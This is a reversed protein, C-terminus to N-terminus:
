EATAAPSDAADAKPKRTAPAPTADQTPAEDLEAPAQEAAAVHHGRRLAAFDPWHWASHGQPM